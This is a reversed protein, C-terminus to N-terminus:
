SCSMMLVNQIQKLREVDFGMPQEECEEILVNMLRVIHKMKMIEEQEGAQKCLKQYVTPFNYIYKIMVYYDGSLLVCDESDIIPATNLFTNIIIEEVEKSEYDGGHLKYDKLKKDKVYLNVKRGVLSQFISNLFEITRQPYRDRNQKEECVDVYAYHMELSKMKNYTFMEDMYIKENDARYKNIIALYAKVDQLGPLWLTRIEELYWSLVKQNCDYYGHSSLYKFMLKRGASNGCDCLIEKRVYPIRELLGEKMDCYGDLVMVAFDFVEMQNIEDIIDPAEMEGCEQRFVVQMGRIISEKFEWSSSLLLESVKECIGESFEGKDVNHACVILFAIYKELDEKTNLLNIKNEILHFVKDSNDFIFEAAEKKSSIDNVLMQMIINLKIKIPMDFYIIDDIYQSNGKARTAINFYFVSRIVIDLLRNRNEFLMEKDHVLAMNLFTYIFNLMCSNSTEILIGVNSKIWNRNSKRYIESEIWSLMEDILFTFTKIEECGDLKDLCRRIEKVYYSFSVVSRAGLFYIMGMQIFNNFIVFLYNIDKSEELLSIECTKEYEFGLNLHFYVMNRMVVYPLFLYFMIINPLYKDRMLKGDWFSDPIISQLRREGLFYMAMEVSEDDTQYLLHNTVAMKLVNKDLYKYKDLMESTYVQRLIPSYYIWCNYKNLMNLVVSILLMYNEDVDFDSQILMNCCDFFYREQYFIDRNSIMKVLIWKRVNQEAPLKEQFKKQLCELVDYAFKYKKTKKGGIEVKGVFYYGDLVEIIKEIFGEVVSDAFCYEGRIKEGAKEILNKLDKNVTERNQIMYVMQKISFSYRYMASIYVFCYFFNMLISGNRGSGNFAAEVKLLKDEVYNLAHYKFNSDNDDYKGLWLIDMGICNLYEKCIDRQLNYENYLKEKKEFTLPLLKYKEFYTKDNICEIKATNEFQYDYVCWLQRVYGINSLYALIFCRCLKDIKSLNEVFYIGENDIKVKRMGSKKFFNIIEKEDWGNLLEIIKNNQKNRLSIMAAAIAFILLVLIISVFLGTSGAFIEGNIFSYIAQFIEIFCLFAAFVEMISMQSNSEIKHEKKCYKRLANFEWLNEIESSQSICVIKEEWQDALAKMDDHIKKYDNYTTLINIIGASEGADTGFVKNYMHQLVSESEVENKDNKANSEKILMRQIYQKNVRM